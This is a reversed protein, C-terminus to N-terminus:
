IDENLQKVLNEADCFVSFGESDMQYRDDGDHKYDWGIQHSLVGDKGVHTRFFSVYSHCELGTNTDWAHCHPEIREFLPHKPYIYAYVCWTYPAYDDHKNESCIVEVCFGKGDKRWSRKPTWGEFAVM